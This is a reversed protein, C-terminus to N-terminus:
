HRFLEMNNRIAEQRKSTDKIAMIEAKSTYTKGGAPPNDVNAGQQQTQVIFDSWETKISESLKEADRISGDKNLTIEDLSTVKLVTDLRKDAIGAEKLLAKYASKKAEKDAKANQEAKYSDYEKSLENYKDEWKSDGDKADALEKNLADVKNNLKEQAKSADNRIGEVTETHAEIVATVQNDELGLSRLFARTLAM